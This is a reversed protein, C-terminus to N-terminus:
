WNLPIDCTWLRRGYRSFKKKMSNMERCDYYFASPSDILVRGGSLFGGFIEKSGSGDFQTDGKALILGHWDVSGGLRANGDIMLIGYGSLHQADINEPCYYLGYDESSGLVLRTEHTITVARGKLNEIVRALPYPEQDNLLSPRLGTRGSFDTARFGNLASPTTVVDPLELCVAKDAIYGFEGEAIASGSNSIMSDGGAYIAAPIDAFLPEPFLETAVSQQSGGRSFGTSIIREVPSGPCSTCEKFVFDNNIDAWKVVKGGAVKHKLVVTFSEGTPLNGHVTVSWNPDDPRDTLSGMKVTAYNLGAEAAYFAQKQQIYANSLNLDAQTIKSSIAGIISCIALIILAVTTVTGNEKRLRTVPFEGGQKGFNNQYVYGQETSCVQRSRLFDM